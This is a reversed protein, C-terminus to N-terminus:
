ILPNQCGLYKPEVIALPLTGESDVLLDLLLMDNRLLSSASMPVNSSMFYYADKRHIIKEQGEVYDTIAGKGKLVYTLGSNECVHIGVRTGAKRDGLNAIIRKKQGTMRDVVTADVMGNSVTEMGGLRGKPKKGCLRRTPKSWELGELGLDSDEYFDAYIERHM